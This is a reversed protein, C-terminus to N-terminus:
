VALDLFFHSDINTISSAHERNVGANYMITGANYMITGSSTWLSQNITASTSLLIAWLSGQLLLLSSNTYVQEKYMVHM